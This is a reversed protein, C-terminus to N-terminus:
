EPNVALLRDLIPPLADQLTSFAAPLDWKQSERNGTTNSIARIEIAPVGLRRATHVVAAGEMAEAVCGTRAAIRDAAEDTGSCTAVTAIRGIPALNQVAQILHPDCPVDNGLFDGLSFGIASMDQFGTPTEIGEEAYVCFNAGILDGINLNSGPLAGAVGVSIIAHVQDKQAALTTAIAANTRGVGATVVHVGERTGVAAAEADVAVVLVITM